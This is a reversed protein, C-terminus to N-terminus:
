LLLGGIVTNALDENHEYTPLEIVSSTETAEARLNRKRQQVERLENRVVSDYQRYAGSDLQLSNQLEVPVSDIPHELAYKFAAATPNRRQKKITWLANVAEYLNGNKALHDFILDKPQEWNNFQLKVVWKLVRKSKAIEASEELSLQTPEQTEELELVTSSNEKIPDPRKASGSLGYKYREYKFNAAKQDNEHPIRNFFYVNGAWKVHVDGQSLIGVEVLRPMYRQYTRLPVGLTKCIDEASLWVANSKFGGYQAYLKCFLGFAKSEKVAFENIFWKPLMLFLNLYEAQSDAFVMQGNNETASM